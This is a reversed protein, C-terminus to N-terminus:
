LSLDPITGDLEHLAQKILDWGNEKLIIHDLIYDTILFLKGENVVKNPICYNLTKDIELFDPINFTSLLFRCVENHVVLYDKPMKYKLNLWMQFSIDFDPESTRFSHYFQHLTGWQERLSENQKWIASLVSSISHQTTIEYTIGTSYFSRFVMWSNTDIFYPLKYLTPKNLRSTPSRGSFNREIYNLLLSRVIFKTLMLPTSPYKEPLGAIEILFNGNLGKKKLAKPKRKKINLKFRQVPLKRTGSSPSANRAANAM